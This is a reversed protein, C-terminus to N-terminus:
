VPEVAEFMSQVVIYRYMNVVICESPYETLMAMESVGSLESGRM